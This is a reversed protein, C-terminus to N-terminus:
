DSYSDYPKAKPGWLWRKAEMWDRTILEVSWDRMLVNFHFWSLDFGRRSWFYSDSDTLVVGGTNPNVYQIDSAHNRPFDPDDARRIKHFRWCYTGWFKGRSPKQEYHEEYTVPGFPCFLMRPHCLRAPRVPLDPHAPDPEPCLVIAPNGPLGCTQGAEHPHDGSGNAFIWPAVQEHKVQYMAVARGIHYLQTACVTENARCRAFWFSPLLISVLLAM